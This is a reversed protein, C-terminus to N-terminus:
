STIDVGSPRFLNTLNNICVHFIVFLDLVHRFAYLGIHVNEETQNSAPNGGKQFLHESKNSM